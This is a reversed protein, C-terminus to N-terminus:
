LKGLEKELEKFYESVKILKELINKLKRLKYYKSASSSSKGSFISFECLEILQNNTYSLWSIDEKYSNILIQITKFFLIDDEYTGIPPRSNDYLQM